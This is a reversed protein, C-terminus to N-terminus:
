WGQASIFNAITCLEATTFVESMQKVAKSKQVTEESTGLGWAWDSLFAPFSKANTVRAAPPLRDTKRITSHWEELISHAVTNDINCEEEGCKRAVEDLKALVHEGTVKSTGLVADAFVSPSAKLLEDRTCPSQKGCLVNIPFMYTMLAIVRPKDLSKPKQTDISQWDRRMQAIVYAASVTSHETRGTGSSEGLVLMRLKADESATVWQRIGLRPNDMVLHMIYLVIKSLHKRTLPKTKEHYPHMVNLIYWATSSSASECSGCALQTKVRSAKTRASHATKSEVAERYKKRVGKEASAAQRGLYRATKSRQLRSRLSSSM